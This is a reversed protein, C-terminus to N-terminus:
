AAASQLRRRRLWIASGFLAALIAAAMLLLRPLTLTPPFVAAHQAKMSAVTAEPVGLSKAQDMLREAQEQNQAILAQAWSLPLLLEEKVELKKLAGICRELRAADKIKVGVRCDLFEIESPLHMVPGAKAEETKNGMLEAMVKQEQKAKLAAIIEERTRKRPAAAPDEPTPPAAQAKEKAAIAALTPQPHEAVHARLHTLSADINELDRASFHESKLTNEIFRIHDIVKALPLAVAKGCNGAAIEYRGVNAYAVCLRSFSISAEPVAHGLAEYYKIAELWNGGRFNREARAAMDQLFYAFEIPDANREAMSPISSKPDADNVKWKTALDGEDQAFVPAAM